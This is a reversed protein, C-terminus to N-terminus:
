EPMGGYIPVQKAGYSRMVNLRSEAYQNAAQNFVKMARQYSETNPATKTLATQVEAPLQAFFPATKPNARYGEIRDLEAQVVSSTVSGMGASGSGSTSPRRRYYDAQSQQLPIKGQRIEDVQAKFLPAHMNYYDRTIGLKKLETDLEVGKLGMAVLQQVQRQKDAARQQVAQAIGQAAEEGGAGINVMGYPSQGGMTKLGGKLMALWLNTKFDRAKEAEDGKILDEIGKFKAQQSKYLDEISFDIKKIDEPKDGYQADIPGTLADIGKNDTAPAAAVPAAPAAPTSKKGGKDRHIVIPPTTPKKEEVPAAPAPAAVAPLKGTTSLTELEAPSLKHIRGMVDKAFQREEDTQKMFGGFIGAKPGYQTILKNRLRETEQTKAGQESTKDWWRGFPTDATGATPIMEYGSNDALEPRMRPFYDEPYYTAPMNASVPQDENDQFAVIGGGAYEAPLNSQAADIGQPMQAQAVQQPAPQAQEPAQTVQEAAQMVQQGIPPQNQQQQGALLAAAQQRQQVKQQLLPIGIYPPISGSQIARQIQAIDLKQAQALNSLLDGIM